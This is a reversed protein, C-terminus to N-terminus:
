VQSAKMDSGEKELRARAIAAEQASKLAVLRRHLSQKERDRMLEMQQQHSENEDGQSVPFTDVRRRSGAQAKSPESDEIASRTEWIDPDDSDSPWIIEDDELYEPQYDVKRPLPRPLKDPELSHRCRQCLTHPARTAPDSGSGSRSWSESESDWELEGDSLYTDQDHISTNSALSSHHVLNQSMTCPTPPNIEILALISTLIYAPSITSVSAQKLLSSPASMACRTPKLYAPQMKSQDTHNAAITSVAGLITITKVTHDSTAKAV